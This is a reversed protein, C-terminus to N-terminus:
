KKLLERGETKKDKDSGDDPGSKENLDEDSFTWKELVMVTLISPDETPNSAGFPSTM